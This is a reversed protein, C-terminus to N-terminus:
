GLDYGPDYYVIPLDSSKPMQSVIQSNEWFEPTHLLAILDAMTPLISAYEREAAWRRRRHERGGNQRFQEGAEVGRAYPLLCSANLRIKPDDSQSAQEIKAWFASPAIRAMTQCMYTFEPTMRRKLYNLAAAELTAMQDANLNYRKIYKWMLQKMYGAGMTLPDDLLFQLTEDFITLDASTLMRRLERRSLRGLTSYHEVPNHVLREFSVTLLDIAQILTDLEADEDITIMKLQRHAVLENLRELFTLRRQYEVIQQATPTSLLFRYFDDLSSVPLVSAMEADAGKILAVFLDIDQVFVNDTLVTSIALAM